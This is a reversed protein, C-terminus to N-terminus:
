LTSILKGTRTVDQVRFGDIYDWNFKDEPFLKQLGDWIDIFELVAQWVANVKTEATVEVYKSDKNEVHYIACTKDDIMVRFVGEQLSEILEVVPMLWGMNFHFELEDSKVRQTINKVKFRGNSGTSTVETVYLAQDFKPFLKQYRFVNCDALNLYVPTFGVFKAIKVNREIIEESTM